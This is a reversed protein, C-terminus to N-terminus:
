EFQRFLMTQIARGSGSTSLQPSFIIGFSLKHCAQQRPVMLVAIQACQFITQIARTVSIKQIARNGGRWLLLVYVLATLYYPSLIVHSMLYSMLCLEYSM